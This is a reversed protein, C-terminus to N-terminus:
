WRAAARGVICGSLRATGAGPAVGVDAVPETRDGLDVVAAYGHLDFRGEAVVTGRRSLREVLLAPFGVPQDEFGSYILARRYRTLLRELPDPPCAAAADLAAELIPTGGPLARGGAPDSLAANGYWWVAPAGMQTTIVVDGERRQAMLWGVGTRDDVGNNGTPWRGLRYQAWGLSFVDLSLPLVLAIAVSAAIAWVARWRRNAIATRRVTTDVFLVVGLYVVPVIWLALRDVLPVLALAGLIFASTPISALVLGRRGGALVFGCLASV